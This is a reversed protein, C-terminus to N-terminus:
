PVEQARGWRPDRLININPAWKSTFYHSSNMNAFSRVETSIAAGVSHWLSTNFSSSMSVVQPFVTPANPCEVDCSDQGTANGCLGCLLLGHCTEGSWNFGSVNLSPISADCGFNGCALQSAIDELPVAQALAAARAAIPLTPDLWPHDENKPSKSADVVYMAIAITTTVLPLKTM